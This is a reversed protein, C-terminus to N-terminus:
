KRNSFAAAEKIWSLLEGDIEKTTSVLLHHTWRNPYPEAALEIRPSELKYDLGFTIVLYVPPCDKKKRIRAFSVCAFLHKNYFSIQTKQAKIRVNEIDALVREEFTEYLPLAEMRGDFFRLVEPNIM